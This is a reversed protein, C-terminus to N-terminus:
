CTIWRNRTGMLSKLSQLLVYLEEASIPEEYAEVSVKQLSQNFYKAVEPNEPSEKTQGWHDSWRSHGNKKAWEESQLPSICDTQARQATFGQLDSVAAM